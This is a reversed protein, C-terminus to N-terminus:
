LNRLTDRLQAPGASSAWWANRLKQRAHCDPCPHGDVVATGPCTSCNQVGTPDDPHTGLHLNDESVAPPVGIM